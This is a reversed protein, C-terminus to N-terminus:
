ITWSFIYTSAYTCIMCYMCPSFSLLLLFLCHPLIDNPSGPHNLHLVKLSVIGRKCVKPSVSTFIKFSCREQHNWYCGLLAWLCGPVKPGEQTLQLWNPETTCLDAPRRGVRSGAHPPGWGAWTAPLPPSTAEWFSVPTRSGSHPSVSVPWSVVALTGGLDQGQFEVGIAQWGKM